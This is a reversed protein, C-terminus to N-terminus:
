RQRNITLINISKPEDQQKQPQNAKALRNMQGMFSNTTMGSEPKNETERRVMQSQMWSFTSHNLNPSTIHEHEKPQENLNLPQQATEEEQLKHQVEEQREEQHFAVKEVVIQDMEKQLEEPHVEEKQVLVQEQVEYIQKEEVASVQIIEESATTMIQEPELPVPVKQFYLFYQIVDILFSQQYFATLTRTICFTFDEIQRESMKAFDNCALQVTPMSPESGTLPILSNMSNKWEFSAGNVQLDTMKSINQNLLLALQKSSKKKNLSYNVNMGTVSQRNSLVSLWLSPKSSDWLKQQRRKEEGDVIVRVDFGLQTLSASVKETLSQPIFRNDIEWYVRNGQVPSVIYLRQHDHDVHFQMAYRTLVDYVDRLLSDSVHGLSVSNIRIEM